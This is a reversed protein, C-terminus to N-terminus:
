RAPAHARQYHELLADGGFDEEFDRWVAHIHNADNQTNDFEILFRTGQIRYYHKEGPKTSGMWAFRIQPDSLARKLRRAQESSTQIESHAKMLTKLSSLQKADLESTSLGVHDKLSARISNATLIDSPAEVSVLAKSLQEPKLSSVLDFALNQEKSLIATGAKTGTRVVGPNSGLFQPTSSIELGKEFAFTLSQHHGEYRFGWKSSATPDGYVAFWYKEPDRGMNNNEIERLVLELQRIGEVKVKGEKSLVSHLLREAASRQVPSMEAWSIGKRNLPVYAWQFRQESGFAVQTAAKQTPTLTALFAKAAVVSASETQKPLAASVAIAILGAAVAKM